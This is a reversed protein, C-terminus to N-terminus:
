TRWEHYANLRDRGVVARDCVCWPHSEALFSQGLYNAGLVLAVFRSGEGITTDLGLRASGVQFMAWYLKVDFDTHAPKERRVVEEVRAKRQERSQPLEGLRTPVLVTFRHATRKMPVASSVFEIWDFLPRKATPLEAPLNIETFEDYENDEAMGYANNLRSIQRYRRALFEQFLPKDFDTVAAYTFGIAERTFRIWDVANTEELPQTPLFRIENLSAHTSGWADNIRQLITQEGSDDHYIRQLFDQFREHLTLAGHAPEWPANGTTLGLMAPSTPDGLVIGPLRRTLFQEVIRVCRGGLTGLRYDRQDRLEDFIHADPCEDISLRIAARMGIQTGHWCFLLEAHDLFLRRRKEGWSPDLVAGLWGALWELYEAPATRTDILAEAREIRGELATYLGEVNALFRDLFGASIPDDRYVAPMYQYLYSFRPYYVRLVRISPTSRGTGHLTLRLEIFRGKANQLLLEWTGTGEQQPGKKYFPHHMPIESGESRLYLSPELHWLADSLLERRNATRSEVTVMTGEPICADIMLRHWVCDPEKGDRVIGSLCAESVYHHRPQETLPLWRKGFDYYIEGCAEILAKGTYDRMPLFPPQLALELSNETARLLLQFAQMGNIAAVYLSGKITKGGSNDEATFAFDHGRISPVDLLKGIIKSDLAVEDVHRGDRFYHVISFDQNSGSELILVSGNPLGEIAVPDRALVPSSLGLSISAPFIQRPRQRIEEDLSRFDDVKATELEIFFSSCPAVRFYRDLRWYRAMGESPGRDLIWVGGDHAPTIDFPAFSVAEPWCVWSPPGGAHLDFILLGAPSLTGVVMYEHATVALGRLMPVLPQEESPVPHFKGGERSQECKSALDEISWFRGIQTSTAAPRLIIERTNESIWYFNGYHDFAAGRRDDVTLSRTTPLQPLRLVKPALSMSQRERDWWLQTDDQTVLLPLWDRDGSILHFRTGNVDM